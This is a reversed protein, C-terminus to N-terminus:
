KKAYKGFETIDETTYRVVHTKHKGDKTVCYLHLPLNHEILYDLLCKFAPNPDCYRFVDLQAGKFDEMGDLASVYSNIFVSVYAVSEKFPELHSKNTEKYTGDENRNDFNGNMEVNAADILCSLEKNATQANACIATILLFLVITFNVVSSKVTNTM